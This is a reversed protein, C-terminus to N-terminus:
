PADHERGLAQVPDVGAERLAEVALSAIAVLEMFAEHDMYVTERDDEGTGVLVSFGRDAVKVRETRCRIGSPVTKEGPVLRLRGRQKM